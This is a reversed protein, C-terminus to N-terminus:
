ARPLGPLEAESGPGVSNVALVPTAWSRAVLGPRGDHQGQVAARAALASLKLFVSLADLPWDARECSRSANAVLAREADDAVQAVAYVESRRAGELAAQVSPVAEGTLHFVKAFRKAADNCDEGAVVHAATNGGDVQVVVSAGPARANVAEWHKNAEAVDSELKISAAQAKATARIAAWIM